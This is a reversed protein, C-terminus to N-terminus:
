PRDIGALKINVPRNYDDYAVTVTASAGADDTIRWWRDNPSPTDSELQWGPLLRVLGDFSWGIDDVNVLYEGLKPFLRDLTVPPITATLDDLLLVQRSGSMGVPASYYITPPGFLEVGLAGIDHSLAATVAKQDEAPDFPYPIEEDILEQLGFQTGFERVQAAPPNPGLYHSFPEAFGWLITAPDVAISALVHCSATIEGSDSSFSFRGAPPDAQWAYNGLKEELTQALLEQRLLSYLIAHQGVRRIQQTM